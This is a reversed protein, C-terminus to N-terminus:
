LPLFTSSLKFTIHKNPSKRILMNQISFYTRKQSTQTKFNSSVIFSESQKDHGIPSYGYWYFLTDQRLTWYQQPSPVPSYGQYFVNLYLKITDSVLSDDKIERAINSDVRNLNRINILTINITDNPM